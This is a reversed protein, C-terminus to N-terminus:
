MAYEGWTEISKAMFVEHAEQETDYSGLFIVQNDITIKSHYRNRHKYAGKLKGVRRKQPTGNVMNENHSADRLNILRNDSRVRNKHDIEGNPWVGYVYLWALRHAPYREDDINIDIYRDRKKGAVSGAYRTNWTKDFRNLEPKFKWIFVGVVPDYHLRQRLYEATIM